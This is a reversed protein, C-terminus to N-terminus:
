AEEIDTVATWHQGPAATDDSDEEEEEADDDDSSIAGIQELYETIIGDVLGEDELDIARFELPNTGIIELIIVLYISPGPNAVALQYLDEVGDEEVEIVGIPTIDIMGHDPVDLTFHEDNIKIIQNESTVVDGDTMYLYSTTMELLQNALKPDEMVVLGEDTVLMPIREHDLGCFNDAETDHEGDIVVVVPGMNPVIAQFIVSCRRTSSTDNSM